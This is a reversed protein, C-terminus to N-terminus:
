VLVIGKLADSFKKLASTSSKISGTVKTQKENLMDSFTVVSGIGSKPKRNKFSSATTKRLHAQAKAQAESRKSM